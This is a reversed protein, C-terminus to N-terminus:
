RGDPDRVGGRKFSPGSVRVTALAPRVISSGPAPAAEHVLCSCCSGRRKRVIAEDADIDTTGPQIDCPMPAIAGMVCITGIGNGRQDLSQSAVPLASRPRASRRSRSPAPLPMAGPGGQEGRDRLEAPEVVLRGCGQDANSGENVGAAGHNSGCPDMAASSRYAPNKVHRSECCPFVIWNQAGEILAQDACAFRGLKGENGNQTAEDDEGIGHEFGSLGPFTCEGMSVLCPLDRSARLRDDPRAVRPGTPKAPVVACRSSRKGSSTRSRCAMPSGAPM